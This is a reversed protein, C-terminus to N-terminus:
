PVFKKFIVGMLYPGWLSIERESNEPDSCHMVNNLYRVEEAAKELSDKGFLARITNPKAKQPDTHGNVDKMRKVIGKGEYLRLVIGEECELFAQITPKYIPVDRIHKYHEKIIQKPVPNVYVLDTRSFDETSSDKILLRDACTFIELHREFNKPKTFVLTKEIEM